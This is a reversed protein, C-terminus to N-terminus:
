CKLRFPLEWSPQHDPNPRRYSWSRGLELETVALSRLAPAPPAEERLEEGAQARSVLFVQSKEAKM